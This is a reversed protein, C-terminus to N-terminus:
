RSLKDFKLNTLDFKETFKSTDVGTARKLDEKAAYYSLDLEFKVRGGSYKQEKFHKSM